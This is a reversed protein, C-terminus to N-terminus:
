VKLKRHQLGLLHPVASRPLQHPISIHPSSAPICGAGTTGDVSAMAGRPKPLGEPLIDWASVSGATDGHTGPAPHQCCGARGTAQSDSSGHGSGPSTDWRRSGPVGLSDGQIAGAAAQWALPVPSGPSLAGCQAGGAGKGRGCDRWQAGKIATLSWIFM